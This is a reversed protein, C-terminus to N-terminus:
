EFTRAENIYKLKEPIKNNIKFFDDIKYTNNFTNYTRDAVGRKKKNNIYEDITKMTFHKIYAKSFNYPQFPSSDSQKGFSNSYKFSMSPVHPNGRWQFNSVGGRVISKVHNNMPFSYGVCKDYEMPTTFRELLPRHDNFVLDNDTYVM